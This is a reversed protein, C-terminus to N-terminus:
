FKTKIEPINSELKTYFFRSLTSPSCARHKIIRDIVQNKLNEDTIRIYELEWELKGNINHTTIFPECTHKISKLIQKFLPTDVDNTYYGKGVFFEVHTDEIIYEPAIAKKYKSQYWPKKNKM